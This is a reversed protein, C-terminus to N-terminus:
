ERLEKLAINAIKRAENISTRNAIQGFRRRAQIVKEPSFQSLAKGLRATASEHEKDVRRKLVQVFIAILAAGSAMGALFTFAYIM